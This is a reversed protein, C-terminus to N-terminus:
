RYCAIVRLGYGAGPRYDEGPKEKHRIGQFDGPVRVGLFDFYVTDRFGRVPRFGIFVPKGSVIDFAELNEIIAGRCIQGPGMFKEGRVKGAHVAFGEVFNETPVEIAHCKETPGYRVQAAEQPVYVPCGERGVGMGARNIGSKGGSDADYGVGQFVHCFHGCGNEGRPSTAAVDKHASAPASFL